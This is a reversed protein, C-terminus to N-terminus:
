GQRHEVLAVVGEDLLGTLAADYASSSVYPLDPHSAVFDDTMSRLWMDLPKGRHRMYLWGIEPEFQAPLAAGVQEKAQMHLFTLLVRRM